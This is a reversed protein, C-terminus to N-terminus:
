FDFQDINEKRFVLIDGLLIHDDQITREGLRGADFTADGSALEGRALAAAAYITLYGLDETNWLVVSNVTGNVVYSRMDNPTSLGVVQVKGAQGAQQIAEAAGPFAVSSIALIGRLQPYAKLLDQTVQFALKQDENSPQTAVLKLQPYRELRARIHKIWENQNAATLYATVIAIEGSAQEEGGLDEVLTDVLAYGIEQATAQNVFWERADTIGDADWTIVHVGKQRAKRMAPAMVEPDNPAVAIVDVGQLAWKEIMEAGKEPSGDTPGDYTLDINGLEAAAEIAGDACSTFYPLGKKKPLLCIRIRGDTGGPSSSSSSGSCGAIVLPVSALLRLTHRRSFKSQM